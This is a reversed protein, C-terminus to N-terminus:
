KNNELPDDIYEVGEGNHDYLWIKGDHREITYNDNLMLLIWKLLTDATTIQYCQTM